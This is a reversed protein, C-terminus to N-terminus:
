RKVAYASWEVQSAALERGSPELYHEALYDPGAQEALQWGYPGIFAAVDDPNLGFQWLRSRVRFRRYLSEAGYRNTGDIFDSRVYTFVLRSGPTASRLFEFTSAVGDASLYQTVGEWIFFTRHQARHGHEALEAALDDHEFDVPVLHVSDPVSGLARHVVSRKREINVPLDVEFVPIASHRALRYGVTDLGAGLIVVADIDPLAATLKDGIYRKRCTLNAWLGPGSRETTEILLKRVLPWRAARILARLGAPLFASALDDDVLRRRVPEYQEVAALVM